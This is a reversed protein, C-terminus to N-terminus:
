RLRRVLEALADLDLGEICIGAPGRVVLPSRAATMATPEVIHVPEFEPARQPAPTPAPTQQHWRQITKAPIGLEAAIHGDSLGQSSRLRYHEVVLKQLRKPYRRGRGTGAVRSLSALLRSPINSESM